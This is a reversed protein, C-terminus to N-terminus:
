IQVPIAKILMFAMLLCPIALEEDDLELIWQKMLLNRAYFLKAVNKGDDNTFATVGYGFNTASTNIHLGADNLDFTYPGRKGVDLFGLENNGNWIKWAPKDDRTTYEALAVYQRKTTSMVYNDSKMLDSSFMYIEAGNEAMVKYDPHALAGISRQPILKFIM